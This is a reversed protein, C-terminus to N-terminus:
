RSGDKVAGVVADVGEIGVKAADYLIGDRAVTPRPVDTRRTAAYELNTAYGTRDAETVLPKGGPRFHPMVEGSFLTLVKDMMWQPKIGTNLGVIVRGLGLREIVEGLQDTVTTPSGAVLWRNETLLDYTMKEMPTSRYGGKMGRLSALSVYGPPFNDHFPSRFFNQYGWEELSEVERRAVADSEAVHVSIVAASQTPDPEYGEERCFDRFRTMNKEMVALPSLVCQYAYRRQAALQQTEVSGGGPLLMPIRRTPRPWLNVYPVHFFDGKWEFPGEQYLAAVMLDHAEKHRERATAPNMGTSHYQMGHGMPLGVVLRGNSITDVIAIEEALRVPSWYNNIIPGNILIKMRQTRAAVYAGALMPNGWLGIPGNHQESVGGGDFGYKELSIVTDLAQQMVRQGEVPDYYKNPLDIFNSKREGAFPVNIFANDVLGLFEINTM